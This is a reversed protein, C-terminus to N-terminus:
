NFVDDQHYYDEDREYYFELSGNNITRLFEKMDLLIKQFIFNFCSPMLIFALICVIGGILM